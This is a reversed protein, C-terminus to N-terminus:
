LDELIEKKKQEYEEYTILRQDYLRQLKKLRTEVDEESSADERSSTREGYAQSEEEMHYSYSGYGPYKTVTVDQGDEEVEIVQSAIGRDTFGNRYNVYTIYVAVGTWVVGFLGFVPIAVFVGIICFLIGVIFGGKSQTKGPRVHIKKSM